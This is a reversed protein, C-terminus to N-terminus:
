PTATLVTLVGCLVAACAICGATLWLLRLIVLRTLRDVGLAKSVVAFVCPVCVAWLVAYGYTIASIM